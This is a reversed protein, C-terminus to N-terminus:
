RHNSMAISHTDNRANPEAGGLHLSAPDLPSESGDSLALWLKEGGERVGLVFFPVDEVRFYSWDYGNNLIFRGDDPHLDIWSSFARAMGPHEVLAGDHHFRGAADLVISSERSRGEPAPFHFFEPHDAPRM